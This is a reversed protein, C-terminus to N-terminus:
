WIYKAHKDETLIDNLEDLSIQKIEPINHNNVKCINVNKNLAKKDLKIFEILKNKDFNKIYPIDLKKFISIVRNILNENDIFYIMGNAICEGHLFEDLEFYSEFAHGITHGFNLIKRTSNEKFDLEVIQKKALISFYIIEDLQSLYDKEFANLIDSNCLIGIKLAEMLGNNIHRIPLSKLFIPDIIVCTPNYFSGILNKIGNHNIAVKGGISSDVQSLTTTPINVWKIGRMYTSAVFGGLDGTIGGGITLIQNNRNLQMNAATDCIKQYNSLDKNKECAEFKYLQYDCLQNTIMSIYIEPINKDVIILTKNECDILSTLDNIINNGLYITYPNDNTEVEIKRM